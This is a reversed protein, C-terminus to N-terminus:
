PHNMGSRPRKGGVWRSQSAEERQERDAKVRTDGEKEGWGPLSHPWCRGPCRQEPSEAFGGVSRLARCGRSRAEKGLTQPVPAELFAEFQNKRGSVM